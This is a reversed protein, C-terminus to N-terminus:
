KKKLEDESYSSEEEEDEDKPVPSKDNEFNDLAIREEKRKKAALMTFLIIAIVIIGLGGILFAQLNGAEFFSADAPNSTTEVTQETTTGTNLNDEM